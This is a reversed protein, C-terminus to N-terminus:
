PTSTGLLFAELSPVMCDDGDRRMESRRSPEDKLYTLELSIFVGYFLNVEQNWLPQFEGTDKAKELPPLPTGIQTSFIPSPLVSVWESLAIRNIWRSVLCFSENLKSSSPDIGANDLRRKLKSTMKALRPPQLPSASSVDNVDQKNREHGEAKTAWGGM